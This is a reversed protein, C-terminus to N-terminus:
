VVSKRDVGLQVAQSALTQSRLALEDQAQRSIGYQEAINEATIGMHYHNSACTLGDEIMTDRLTLNGMKVGQRVKSDLLYPAQSMNEMGGVVVIDADGSIISQAGLAVSKLGSGCVKNITLSPIEKEIGAKLAAQRAPNQGLGAQLVNGMIVENVLASEINARKIAEQIVIAGLDVASVSSLAGNFSGIPTRVASVIVVNEM